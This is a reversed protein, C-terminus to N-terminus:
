TTLEILTASQAGRTLAVYLDRQNGWNEGRLVVAHDFELGKVLLTSGTCRFMRGRGQHKRRAIEKAYLVPLPTGSEVHDELVCRLASISEHLRLNVGDAQEMYSLLDLLLEPTTGREHVACLSRRDDRRSRQQEGRLIRGAFERDTQPVSGFATTLFTLAAQARRAASAQGLGIVLKRLHSLENPELVRYKQNVLTTLVAGPLARAKPGIVCIRGQKHHTMRVLNRGLDRYSVTRREIPSNRFDPESRQRFTPRAAMLWRGLGENGAKIWRHPTDLTGINTGFDTRVNGWPVLADEFDFIGQLDDGLVRCSLLAGLMVILAHMSLTCDQYEDVIIGNYSNLIGKRVFNHQLLNVMAPYVASWDAFEVSGEYGAIRPYRRVWGWSWGAITDVHYLSGAVHHERFRQRLAAVGAHTHTLILQPGTCFRGVTRVIAETKGCGAPAEVFGSSAQAIAEYVDDSM